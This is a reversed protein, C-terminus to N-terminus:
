NFDLRGCWIHEIQEKTEGDVSFIQNETSDAWFVVNRKFFGVGGGPNLYSSWVNLNIIDYKTLTTM